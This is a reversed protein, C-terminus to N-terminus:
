FDFCLFRKEQTEVVTLRIHEASSSAGKEFGRCELSAVVPKEEAKKTGGKGQKLTPPIDEEQFTEQWSASRCWHKRKSASLSYLFSIFPLVVILDFFTTM